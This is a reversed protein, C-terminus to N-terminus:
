KKNMMYWSQSVNGASGLLSSFAQMGPNIASASARQTGAQMRYNMSQTKQGFAARVANARVTDVDQNTMYDTSDLVNQASGEDIAIGNAALAARQTSKMNAAQLKVQGAEESGRKLEQEAAVDSMQANIQNLDAQHQLADKQMAAGYYSSVASMAGGGAQMGMALTPDCM